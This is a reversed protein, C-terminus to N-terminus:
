EGNRVERYVARLIRRGAPGLAPDAAIADEVSAVSGPQEEDDAWETLDDGREIREIADRPWRLVRLVKAASIDHVTERRVFNAWTTRSVGARQAAENKRLGLHILRADVAEGLTAM